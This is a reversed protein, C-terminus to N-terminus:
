PVLEAVKAYVLHSEWGRYLLYDALKKRKVWTNKERALLQVKKAALADLTELYAQESIQKLAVDINYKSIARKKLELRLRQKGWKKINFKGHVYSQAFRTENLFDHELLHVIVVDVAEPIMRMALLKNSVEQHCREQYACYSELKRKAEEVTYTKVSNM